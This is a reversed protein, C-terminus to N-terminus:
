KIKTFKFVVLTNGNYLLILNFIKNIINFYTALVTYDLKTSPKCIHYPICEIGVNCLRIFIM